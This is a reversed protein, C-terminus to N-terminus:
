KAPLASPRAVLLFHPDQQVIVFDRRLVALWQEADERSQVKFSPVSWAYNARPTTFFALLTINPNALWAKLEPYTLLHLRAATAADFDATMAFPGMRANPPVARGTEAALIINPGFLPSSRPVLQEVFGRARALRPRLEFDYPPLGPPLWASAATLVHAGGATVALVPAAAVHTVILGGVLMRRRTAPWALASERLLVAVAGALPLLFPIAYEVYAGRPALNPVLAAVAALAVVAEPARPRRRQVAMVAAAVGGAMWWLPAAGIVEAPDVHWQKLPVSLAHFDFMWFRANEPALAYPPGLLLLAPVAVGALGHIVRQRLGPGDQWWAAFWLVAFFPAAPLRCGTGLVGLTGLLWFKAAGAPRLVFAAAALTTLLGTFAYTKGLHTYHMWAPSLTFSAVVGLAVLWSTRRRLWHAAVLLALLTWAANLWRQAFLGYGLVSLFPGNVYPLLPMQTYGFDRYPVEGAMVARAAIAYFGEDANLGGCFVHFAAGALHVGPLALVLIRLLSLGGVGAGPLPAASPM